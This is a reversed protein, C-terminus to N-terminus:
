LPWGRESLFERLKEIVRAEIQRARERTLGYNDAVEQLTKPEESLLREKLIRFEKENLRKEFEPLEGKLLNLLQRQELVEEASQNESVLFDLHTARGEAETSRSSFVPADLPMETGRASLRQEMEVVDKERVDLKEALLKPGALLGQAELREKERLLHYFLKKQAQTTGIKVLRFNDLLYKLIYSRIWWSAYYGLRAGKTPDFKSVAKMLGINGEQILDLLNSYISRYELAIKVVLRLNATVLRRAAEIDGKEKLKLALSFEEQPDLLSYQRVEELYRRLPDTSSVAGLETEVLDHSEAKVPLATNPASTALEEVMPEVDEFEETFDHDEPEITDEVSALIKNKPMIEPELAPTIGTKAGKKTRPQKSVSQKQGSKKTTKRM